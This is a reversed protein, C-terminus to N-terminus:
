PAATLEDVLRLGLEHGSLWGDEVEPGALWDGCIAMRARPDIGYRQGGRKVARAYRWRHAARDTSRHAFGLADELLRAVDDADEELHTQAWAPTAHAVLRHGPERGPKGAQWIVQHLPGEKPELVDATPPPVNDDFAAMLSWCPLMETAAAAQQLASGEPLLLAAQPAPTAVVVYDARGIAEGDVSYLDFANNQEIPAGLQVGFQAGLADAEHRVFGNMAPVGVYRDHRQDAEDRSRFTGKWTDAVGAAIWTEVQEIFRQDHAEFFPAGHDFRGFASRRSSCRGGPGRGKDALRVDLGANALVRACALGAVGAGIIFLTPRAM